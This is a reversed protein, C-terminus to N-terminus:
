PVVGATTGNRTRIGPTSGTRTSVMMTRISNSPGALPAQRRYLRVGPVYLGFDVTWRWDYFMMDLLVEGMNYFLSPSYLHDPIAGRCVPGEGYSPISLM